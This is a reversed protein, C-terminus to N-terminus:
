TRRHSVTRHRNERWAVCAAIVSALLFSGGVVWRELSGDGGDPSEDFLMEIWQPVALTVVFLCAGVLSVTWALRSLWIRQYQM